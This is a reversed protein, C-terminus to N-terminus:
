RMSSTGCATVTVAVTANVGGYRSGSYAVRRLGKQAWTEQLSEVGLLALLERWRRRTERLLARTQRSYAGHKWHARSRELGEPTRQGTSLGGHFKCRGNKM